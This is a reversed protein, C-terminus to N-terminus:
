HTRTKFRLEFMMQIDFFSDLFINESYYLVIPVPSKPAAIKNLPWKPVPSNQQWVIEAGAGGSKWLIKKM